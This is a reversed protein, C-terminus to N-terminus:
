QVWGEAHLRETGKLILRVLPSDADIHSFEDLVGPIGREGLVRQVTQAAPDDPHDYRIAAAAAFAVHTPEIGQELCMLGAGILRDKPGLKRIPDAAIRRVQDGLARNEYRRLLDEGHTRLEGEDLGWKAVLGAITNSLVDNVATRIDADTIAQWIYEHGRLYGLYAASAHSANHVFLKREVYAGFDAKAELNKLEPLPGKFGEADVPLQCFEEVCVLLPDEGKEKDTMIPVMRGISAEVFGVKEDLAAHYKPDLHKRVEERLFPGAGIMNECVIFNLPPADPNEFRKAVGAAITPSVKSLVPVGVATSALDAEALAQAVSETDMAHIASAGGITLTYTEKDVIRLPYEHRANLGTVLDEVVDVFATEYGSQFYLQGLFGRGINGGGFQVAKKSL